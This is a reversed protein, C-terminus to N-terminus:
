HNNRKKWQKTKSKNRIVNSLESGIIAGCFLSTLILSQEVSINKVFNLALIALLGLMIPTLGTIIKKKFVSGKILFYIIFLAIISFNTSYILLTITAFFLAALQDNRKRFLFSILMGIFGLQLANFYNFIIITWVTLSLLLPTINILNKWQEIEKITKTKILKGTIFSTIITITELIM